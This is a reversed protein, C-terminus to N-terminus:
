LSARRPRLGSGFGGQLPFVHAPSVRFVPGARPATLRVPAVLAIVSAPSIEQPVVGDPRPTACARVGNRVPNAGGAGAEPSLAHDSVLPCRHPGGASGVDLHASAVPGPAFGRHPDRNGRRTGPNPAVRRPDLWSQSSGTRRFPSTEPADGAVAVAQHRPLPAPGVGYLPKAGGRNHCGTTVVVLHSASWRVM